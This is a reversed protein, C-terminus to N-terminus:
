NNGHMLSSLNLVFSRFLVWNLWIFVVSLSIINIRVTTHQSSKCGKCTASVHDEWKYSGDRSAWRTLEILEFPSNWPPTLWSTEQELRASNWIWSLGVPNGATITSATSGGEMQINQPLPPVGRLKGQFLFPDMGQNIVDVVHFHVTQITRCHFLICYLEYQVNGELSIIPAWYRCSGTQQPTNPHNAAKVLQQFMIRENIPDM